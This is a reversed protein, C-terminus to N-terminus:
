GLIVQNLTRQEDFQDIVGALGQILVGLTEQREFLQVRNDNLAANMPFAIPKGHNGAADVELFLSM